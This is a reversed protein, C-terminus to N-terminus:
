IKKSRLRNTCKIKSRDSQGGAIVYKKYYSLCTKWTLVRLRMIPVSLRDSALCWAEAEKRLSHLAAAKREGGVRLEPCLADFAPKDQLYKWALCAAHRKSPSKHGPLQAYPPDGFPSETMFDLMMGVIAGKNWRGRQSGAFMVAKRGAGPRKGGRRERQIGMARSLDLGSRYNWRM